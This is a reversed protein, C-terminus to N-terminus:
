SQSDDGSRIYCCHQLGIGRIKWEFPCFKSCILDGNKEM